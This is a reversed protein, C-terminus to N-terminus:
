VNVLPWTDYVSPAWRRTDPVSEHLCPLEVAARNRRDAVRRVQEDRGADAHQLLERDLRRNLHVTDFRRRPIERRLQIARPEVVSERRQHERAREHLPAGGIAREAAAQPIAPLIPGAAVKRRRCRRARCSTTLPDHIQQPNSGALLASLDGRRMGLPVVNILSTARGNRVRAAQYDGFFFIRNAVIPGGVTGGVVRDRFSPKRRPNLPDLPQWNASWPAANLADDRFFDFASGHAQNTGSKLTVDVIAGQYNGVEAAATNTVIQVQQIADLSPQYAVLNDTTQNADLGDLQFNNAEKRNGNVYPRGGGTTRQGNAWFALNPSVVGPVLLTLWMFNQGNAPLRSAERSSIVFSVDTAATQLLFTQATADVHDALSGIVLTLDLRVTQGADLTFGATSTTKFGTRRATVRYTGAPLMPFDYTGVADTTASWVRGSSTEVGDVRVASVAAATDDRVIGTIRGSTHQATAATSWLSLGLIAFAITFTRRGRTRM